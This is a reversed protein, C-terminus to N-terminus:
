DRRKIKFVLLKTAPRGEAAGCGPPARSRRLTTLKLMLDGKKQIKPTMALRHINSQLRFHLKCDEM